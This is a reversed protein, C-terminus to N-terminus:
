TEASYSEAASLPCFDSDLIFVKMTEWDQISGNLPLTVSATEGTVEVTRLSVALQQGGAGYFSVLFSAEQPMDGLYHISLTVSYARVSPASPLRFLSSGAYRINAYTLATNGAQLAIANWQEASGFYSVDRLRVCGSFAYSGISVVSDPLEIKTLSACYLFAYAGISAVGDPITMHTLSICSSFAYTGISAVGDPINVETLSTCNYFLNDAISLIGDPIDIKTLGTCSYFAGSGISVVTDPIDLETLSACYAFAHKGITTVGSEIRVTKVESNYWPSASPGYDKMPGTGSIVLQNESDLTWTLNDGDAGCEGSAVVIAASAPVTFVCAALCLLIIWIGFRKKM